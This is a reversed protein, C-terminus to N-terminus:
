NKVSFFFSKEKESKEMNMEKKEKKENGLRAEENWKVLIALCTHM